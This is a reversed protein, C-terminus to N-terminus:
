PTIAHQLSFTNTNTTVSLNAILRHAPESGSKVSFFSYSDYASLALIINSTRWLLSQSTPMLLFMGNWCIKSHNEFERGISNLEDSKKEEVGSM